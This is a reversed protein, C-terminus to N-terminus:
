KKKLVKKEAAKGKDLPKKQTEGFIQDAAKQGPSLALPILATGAITVLIAAGIVVGIPAEVEGTGAVALQLMEMPLARAAVRRAVVPAPRVAQRGVVAPRAVRTALAM